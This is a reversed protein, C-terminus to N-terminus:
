RVRVATSAASMTMSPAFPTSGRVLFSKSTHRKRSVGMRVNMLLSSRSMRSGM